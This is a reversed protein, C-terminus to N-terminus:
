TESSDRLVSIRNKLAEIKEDEAFRTGEESPPDAEPPDLAKAESLLAALPENARIIYGNDEDTLAEAENLGLVESLTTKYDNLAQLLMQSKDTIDDDGLIDHITSQFRNLTKWIGDDAMEQALTVEMTSGKNNLKEEAEEREKAEAEKVSTADIVAKENMGWIVASIEMLKVEELIRIVKGEIKEFHAKIVIYGVSLADVVGDAIKTLLDNGDPTDSVFIKVILEEPTEFGALVKGMIFKTSPVGPYKYAHADIFKVKGAEVRALTRKFSGPIFMDLGDDINGIGAGVAEFTREKINLSKIELKVTKYTVADM